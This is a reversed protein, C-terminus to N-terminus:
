KLQTKRIMVADFEILSPFHGSNNPFIGSLEFGFGELTSLATAYDPMGKYIPKVSAETQLARVKALAAAAGKLVELDYGQTDLKLYVSRCNFRREIEPFVEDLTKIPVAVQEEIQNEGEFCKVVGHDPALFSSFQSARMVNFRAEGITAGLACGQVMWNRDSEARKLLERVHSPIPEFSVIPGQFGIEDRLFDRYQGLNAGVDLVCDVQLLDFLRKLHIAGPIRWSRAKPVLLYDVSDDFLQVHTTRLRSKPLLVYGLADFMRQVEPQSLRWKAILVYGLSGIMRQVADRLTPGIM